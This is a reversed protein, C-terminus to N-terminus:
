VAVQSVFQDIVAPSLNTASESQSGTSAQGKVNAHTAGKLIPGMKSRKASARM